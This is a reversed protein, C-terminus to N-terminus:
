MGGASQMFGLSQQQRQMMAQQWGQSVAESSRAGGAQINAQLMSDSGGGTMASSRGAQMNGFAQQDFSQKEMLERAEVNMQSKPDYMDQGAQMLTDAAGQFQQNPNYQTQQVNYGMDSKSIDTQGTLTDMVKHAM